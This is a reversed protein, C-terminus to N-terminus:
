VGVALDELGDGDFDGFVFGSPSRDTHVLRMGRDPRSMHLALEGMTADALALDVRGDGDLDAAALTFSAAGAPVTDAPAFGGAGDGRLISLTPNQGDEYNATILDLHGDGDLDVAAGAYAGGGIAQEVPASFMGTGDGFRVDLRSTSGVIALDRAS